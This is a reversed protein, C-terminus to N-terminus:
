GAAMRLAVPKFRRTFDLSESYCRRVAAGFRDYDAWIREAAAPIEGVHGVLLGCGQHEIWDLGGARTAIVPLGNKMYLSVKGSATGMLRNNTRSEDYLALGISASSVAYDLFAAPLAAPSFRVRDSDRWGNVPAVYRSQFVVVWDGAWSRTSDILDHVGNWWLSGAHLLIRKEPALSLVDHFYRSALRRSSGQEANPVVFMEHEAGLQNETRIFAAREESLAITWLCRQHARRERTKWAREEATAAEAGARLEDSICGMPIGALRSAVASYHLGWQPVTVLWRYKPRRTALRAVLEIAGARTVTMPILRVNERGFFPAPHV